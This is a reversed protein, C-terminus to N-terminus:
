KVHLSVLLKMSGYLGRSAQDFRVADYLPRKAQAFWIWNLQSICSAVPVMLSVRFLVSGFAVVTNLTIGGTWLPNPRGDFTSLLVSVAVLVAIAACTSLIELLWSHLLLSKTSHLLAPTTVAPTTVAPTTVTPKSLMPSEEPPTSTHAISDAQGIQRDGVGTPREVADAPLTPVHSM